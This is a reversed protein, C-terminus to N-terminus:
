TYAICIGAHYEERLAQAEALALDLLLMPFARPDFPLRRVSGRSRPPTARTGGCVKRVAGDCFRRTARAPRVSSSLGPAVSERWVPPGGVPVSKARRRASG